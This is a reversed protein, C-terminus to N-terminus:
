ASKHKPFSEESRIMSYNRLKFTHLIKTPPTMMLYHRLDNCWRKLFSSSEARFTRHFRFGGHRFDRTCVPRRKRLMAESINRSTLVYRLTCQMSKLFEWHLTLHFTIYERKSGLVKSVVFTIVFVACNYTSTQKQVDKFNVLHTHSYVESM